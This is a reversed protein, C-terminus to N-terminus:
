GREPRLRPGVTSPDELSIEPLAAMASRLRDLSGFSEAPLRGLWEMVGPGAGHQRAWAVVQSRGCPPNLGKLYANYVEDQKSM